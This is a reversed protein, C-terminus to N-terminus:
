LSFSSRELTPCLKRDYQQLDTEHDILVPPTHHEKWKQPYTVQKTQLIIDLEHPTKEVM